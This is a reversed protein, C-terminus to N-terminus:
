QTSGELLARIESERFRYGGGPTRVCPLRGYRARWTVTNPALGLLAAVEARLLLRDGPVPEATGTV